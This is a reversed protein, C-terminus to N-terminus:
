DEMLEDDVAADQKNLMDITDKFNAKICESLDQQFLPAGTTCISRLAHRDLINQLWSSHDQSRTVGAYHVGLEMAARAAAGSGPTLDFVAKALHHHLLAKWCDVSKREQWFLPVGSSSDFICQKPVDVPVGTIQEKYEATMVPLSGWPATSVGTYTAEHTTEEGAAAFQQRPATTMQTRSLPLSVLLMEKNDAGFAIRRGLRKTPRYIIWEEHLFRLDEAAKELKRRCSRSRGDALLIVDSPGAQAVVWALMADATKDLEAPSSWPAIRAEGFLESSFLFIRHSESPKGTFNFVHSKEFHKQLEQKTSCRCTGMVVLKKRAQQAQKWAEQREKRKEDAQPDAADSALRNLNRTAPPPQSQQLEMATKHLQLLRFIERLAELGKLEAWNVDKMVGSAAKMCEGMISDFRMGLLDFCFDIVAHSAKNQHKKKLIDVADDDVSAAADMEVDQPAAPTENNGFAAGYRRYCLFHYLVQELEDAVSSASPVHRLEEVWTAILNFVKKRALAVHVAGMSGDRGKDLYEATVDKVTIFEYRLAWELWEVVYEVLNELPEGICSAQNTCIQVVRTLKSYGNTIVEKGFKKEIARLVKLCQPTIKDEFLLIGTMMSKNVVANNFRIGQQNLVKMKSYAASEKAVLLAKYAFAMFSDSQLRAQLKRTESLSISLAAQEADNMGVRCHITVTLACQWLAAFWQIDGQSAAPLCRHMALYWAAAYVHGTLVRLDRKFALRQTKDVSDVHVVLSAPFIIRAVSFGSEDSKSPLSVKHAADLGFFGDAAEVVDIWTPPDGAIIQGPGDTPAFPNCWLLNGSAEYMGTSLLSDKAQSAVWPPKYSRLDQTSADTIALPPHLCPDQDPFQKFEKQKLIQRIHYNVFPVVERLNQAVDASESDDIQPIGPPLDGKPAALAEAESVRVPPVPVQDFSKPRGLKPKKELNEAQADVGRKVM